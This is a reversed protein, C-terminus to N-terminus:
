HICNKTVPVASIMPFTNDPINTHLIFVVQHRILKTIM